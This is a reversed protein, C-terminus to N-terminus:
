GRPYLKQVQSILQATLTPSPEDNAGSAETLRYINTGAVVVLIDNYTTYGSAASDASLQIVEFAQYKGVNTKTLTSASVETTGGGPLPDGPNAENFNQCNQYKILAQGYYTAAAKTSSFQLVSQDGAYVSPGGDWNPDVFVDDAGATNGYGTTSIDPEFDGCSMKPVSFQISTSALKTGSDIAFVSTFGDGITEAPLLARKLAVGSVQPATAAPPKHKPKPKPHGLASASATGTAALSLAGAMAVAAIFAAKM